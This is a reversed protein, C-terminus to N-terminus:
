LKGWWNYPSGPRIFSVPSAVAIFFPELQAVWVRWPALALKRIDLRTEIRRALIYRDPSASDFDWDVRRWVADPSEGLGYVKIHDGLPQPRPTERLPMSLEYRLRELLHPYGAFAYTSFTTWVQQRTLGRQNVLRWIATNWSNTYDAAVHDRVWEVAQKRPGAPATHQNLVEVVLDHALDSVDSPIHAGAWTTRRSMLYHTKDEPLIAGDGTCDLIDVDMLNYASLDFGSLDVWRWFSATLDLDPPLDGPLLTYPTTPTGTLVTRTM